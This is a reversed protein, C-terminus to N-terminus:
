CAKQGSVPERCWGRLIGRQGTDATRQLLGFEGLWGVGDFRRWGQAEGRLRSASRAFLYMVGEVDRQQLKAAM